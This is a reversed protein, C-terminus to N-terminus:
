HFSDLYDSVGIPEEVETVFCINNESCHRIVNAFAIQVEAIDLTRVVPTHEDTPEKILLTFTISLRILHPSAILLGVIAPAHRIDIPNGLLHIHLDQVSVPLKLPPDVPLTEFRSMCLSLTRLSTLAEVATAFDSGGQFDVIRLEEIHPHSAPSLYNLRKKFRHNYNVCPDAYHKVELKKLKFGSRPHTLWKLPGKDYTPMVMLSLSTLSPSPSSEEILQFANHQGYDKFRAGMNELSLSELSQLQPLVMCLDWLGISFRKSPCHLWLHKLSHMDRLQQFIDGDASIKETFRIRKLSSKSYRDFDQLHLHTINPCRKLIGCLFSASQGTHYWHDVGVHKSVPLRWMKYPRLALERVWPGLQPSTLLSRLKIEDACIRRRFSQRAAATWSSHVLCMNRLTRDIESLPSTRRVTAHFPRRQSELEEAVLEIVLAPVPSQEGRQSHEREREHAITRMSDAIHAVIDDAERMTIDGDHFESHQFLSLLDNRFSAPPRPLRHEDFVMALLADSFTVRKLEETCNVGEAISQSTVDSACFDLYRIISLLDDFLTLPLDSYKIFITAFLADSKTSLASAPEGEHADVVAEIENECCPSM